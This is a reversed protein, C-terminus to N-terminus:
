LVWQWLSCYLGQSCFAGCDKYCFVSLWKDLLLYSTKKSCAIFNFATKCAIERTCSFKCWVIYACSESYFEFFRISCRLVYCWTWRCKTLSASM